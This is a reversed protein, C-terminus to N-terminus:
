STSRLRRMKAKISRRLSETTPEPGGEEEGGESDAAPAAPEDPASVDPNDSGLQAALVQLDKLLGRIIREMGALSITKKSMARYAASTSGEVENDAGTTVRDWKANNKMGEIAKLAQTLAEHAEKTVGPVMMSALTDTFVNSRKGGRTLGRVFASKWDEDLSLRKEQLVAHLEEEIISEVINKKIKM